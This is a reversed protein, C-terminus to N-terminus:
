PIDNLTKEISSLRRDIADLRDSLAAMTETHADLAKATAKTAGAKPGSIASAVAIACGAIVVISIMMMIWGLDSIASM